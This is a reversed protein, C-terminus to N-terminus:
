RLTSTRDVFNDLSDWLGEKMIYGPEGCNIRVIQVGDALPEVEVAYDDSVEPDVVRRTLLDVRDVRPHEGLARALEVVYLTQGGTDADRGM